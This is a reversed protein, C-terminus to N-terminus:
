WTPGSKLAGATIAKVFRSKIQKQLMAKKVPPLNLLAGIFRNLITHTLKEPDDFLLHQLKGNEIATSVIREMAIKPTIVRQARAVMRLAKKVCKTACVGCGLCITEDVRAKLARANDRKSDTAPLLSIAGIPCAKACSGCGACTAADVKALFNSTKISQEIGHFSIGKLFDCCCGCCNCIFTPQLQVNDCIQALGLSRCKALLDLLEEQSAKRALNHRILYDSAYFLTICTEVPNECATGLHGQTHRCLCLSVSGGKSEKILETAREYDLVFSFDEPRIVNENVLTRMHVTEPGFFSKAFAHDKYLYHDYFSALEKQSIDSRVRMMSFEIFGVMPPALMYFTKGNKSSVGDLVLGKDAMRDLKGKLVTENEKLRAALEDLYTPVTPLRAAFAAEEESYLTKLIEYVSAGEPMGYPTRDLRKRLNQYVMDKIKHVHGM